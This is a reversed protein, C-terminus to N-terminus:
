QSTPIVPALRAYFGTRAPPDGAIKVVVRRLAAAVRLLWTVLTGQGADALQYSLKMVEGCTCIERAAAHFHAM